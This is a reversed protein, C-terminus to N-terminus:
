ESFRALVPYHDSSGRDIVQAGVVRLGRYLIHDLQWKVEGLDTKWRWTVAFPVFQTLANRLGQKGLHLVLDAGSDAILEVIDRAESMGYNVNYTMVVLEGAGGAARAEGAFMLGCLIGVASLVSKMSM